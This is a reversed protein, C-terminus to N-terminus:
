DGARALYMTAAEHLLTRVTKRHDLAYRRLRRYLRADFRITTVITPPETVKATSKPM